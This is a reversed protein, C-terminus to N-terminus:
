KLKKIWIGIDEIIEEKNLENLLEHRCDEYLICDVHDFGLHQLLQFYYTVEKGCNGVPDNTGSIIFIPLNRRTRKILNPQSARSALKILDCYFSSTCIFGCFPDHIYTGNSPNNRSLWDYATRECFQKYRKSGFLISNILKAQHKSGRFFRYINTIISGAFSHFAPPCTTGCIIVGDVGDYYQIVNRLILSGMSHGFLLLKDGRNHEKLYNILELADLIVRRWGDKNAFYGLEELKKDTGHGRHDYLYVDYNLINLYHAFDYYREHHEAMGHFILISGKPTQSNCFQPYLLTQYDDDQIISIIEQAM